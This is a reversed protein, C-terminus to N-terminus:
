AIETPRWRSRNGDPPGPRPAHGARLSGRPMSAKGVVYPLLGAGLTVAADLPGLPAVGLFSRLGPVLWAAGQLAFSATLAGMLAPNNRLGGTTAISGEDGRCAAAHLLQATALSGFAMTRAQPSVGHRLVGFALAGLVSGAMVSGQGALGRFDRSGLIAEDPPRPPQQMLGPSPPEMALGIAPAVDTVLNIWLLQPVTLPDGFGAATAVLIVGIESLNTALLYRIARRINTYTGRGREVALLLATLDDTGLVVDAADRAATAGNRGMAIGVDAAKLAPSDNIGDGVMAVVVGARQLARIVELKQAPSVRAFVHARRAAEALREPALGDMGALDFVEPAGDNAALGLRRAVARATPVQDGTMMVTHIGARHLRRMLEDAGPRVPDAMGALGVWTLDRALAGNRAPVEGEFHRFAFGLVRLAEKAMATNRRRIAGRDAETMARRRGDQLIWGCLALVEEPGGKVATLRRGDQLDHVSAMFRYSESRHQVALRPHDGRLTLVDLGAELALQVLANETASGNLVPPAAPDGVELQTESCLVGIRLLWGLEDEDQPSTRLPLRGEADRQVPTRGDACALEAVSMRNQTLTGTKDFCIVRVAALTEVADLRRVFVDHRRMEEIGLALTTTAIAPLGEPVAAVALSISSRFMQLLGFGRLLGTGFVVGCVGLSLWVLQRGMGALQRQMPTEPTRADGVLRQIRGVETHPGTAVVIALGGGGTVVTGRYVMGARDALLMAPDTLPEAAKAVPQSEGTLMAEGVTLDQAAVLRADASMMMGRRLVLLDGPVVAEVPVEARTGGRVVLATANGPAALSRITRESRSEVTYGITANLGVVGLIAAAELIGGTAVSVAAAAALLGVPLSAFQGLLMDLRSRAKPLPLLNPGGQALRRRAETETLGTQASSGLDAAVRDAELSHWPPAAAAEAGGGADRPLIEGRALAEALRLIARLELAPDFWVLLNGTSPSADASRVGPLALLGLELRAQVEPARRLGSVRLRARGPIGL